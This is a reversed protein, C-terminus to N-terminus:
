KPYSINICKLLFDFFSRHSTFVENSDSLYDSYSKSFQSSRLVISDKLQEFYEVGFHTENFTCTIKELTSQPFLFYDQLPYTPPVYLSDGILRSSRIDNILPRFPDSASSVFPLSDFFRSLYTTGSRFMGTIFIINNMVLLDGLCM